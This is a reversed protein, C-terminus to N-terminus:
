KFTDLPAPQLCLAKTCCSCTGERGPIRGATMKNFIQAHNSSTTGLPPFSMSILALLHWQFTGLQKWTPGACSCLTRRVPTYSWSERGVQPSQLLLLHHGWVGWTSRHHAALLAPSPLDGYILDGPARFPPLTIDCRWCMTSTSYGHGPM